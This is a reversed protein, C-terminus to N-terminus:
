SLFSLGKKKDESSEFAQRGIAKLMDAIMGSIMQDFWPQVGSFAVVMGHRKVGGWYPTDSPFLLHANSDTQGDNNRGQWLQMGKCRAIDDFPYPWDDKEGVSEEYLLHPEIPYNPWDPYDDARADEMSPVIIVIHGMQRSIIYQWGDDLITAQLVTGVALSANEVTLFKPTLPKSM